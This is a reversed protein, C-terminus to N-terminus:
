GFLRRMYGSRSKARYAFIPLAGARRIETRPGYRGWTFGQGVQADRLDIVQFEPELEQAFAALAADESALCAEHSLVGPNRRWIEFRRDEHVDDIASRFPPESMKFLELLFDVFTTSQLSIVPPDHSAYYIPAFDTSGEHLDVVWFNGFGDSAIPLGHPFIAKHEFSLDRGTFDLVDVATGEVGATRRLLERVSDPLACPLERALADIEAEGLGPRLELEVREGDESSLERALASELAVLPTM